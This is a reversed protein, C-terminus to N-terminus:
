LNFYEKVRSLEMPTLMTVKRGLRFHGFGCYNDEFYENCGTYKPDRKRRSPKGFNRGKPERIIRNLMPKINEEQGKNIMYSIKESLNKLNQSISSHKLIQHEVSWNDGLDKYNVIFLKSDTGPNVMKVTSSDKLAVPLEKKIQCSIEKLREHYGSIFDIENKFQVKNGM